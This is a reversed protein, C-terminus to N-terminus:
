SLPGRGGVWERENEDVVSSTPGRPVKSPVSLTPSTPPVGKSSGEVEGVM